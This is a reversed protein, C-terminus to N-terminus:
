PRRFAYGAGRHTHILRTAQGVDIKSRLYSIYTEVAGPGVSREAGWVADLLQTRTFIREPQRMLTLLLDYERLSLRIKRTGRRVARVDLDVELDDFRLVRPQPRPRRLAVDLRSALEAREFPVVLHDDTGLLLTTLDASPRARESIGLIPVDRIQRLMPLVSRGDVQSLSLDLVIADPPWERAVAVGSRGNAASRVVYGEDRLAREILELTVPERDIVLVRQMGQM